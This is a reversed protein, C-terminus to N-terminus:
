EDQVHSWSKRKKINSVMAPDVGYLAAIDKGYMAKSKLLQRISVIDDESLKARHHKSGTPHYNRGKHVMDNNNDSHTGLWLHHPNVCKPNDCSHCVIMGQPIVSNNHLSWSFRHAAIQRKGDWHCGYKNRYSGHWLWCEAINGSVVNAWFRRIVKEPLEIRQPRETNPKDPMPHAKTPNVM